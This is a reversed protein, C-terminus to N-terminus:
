FRAKTSLKPQSDISFHRFKREKPFDWKPIAPPHYQVLPSSPKSAHTAESEVLAFLNRGIKSTTCNEQWAISPM